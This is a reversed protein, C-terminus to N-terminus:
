GVRVADRASVPVITVNGVISAISNKDARRVNTTLTVAHVNPTNPSVRHVRLRPVIGGKTINNM